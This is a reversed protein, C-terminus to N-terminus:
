DDRDQGVAMLAISFAIGIGVGMVLGDGINDMAVGMAAGVGVGIAMGISWYVSDSMPRGGPQLENICPARNLEGGESTKDLLGEPAIVVPQCIGHAFSWGIRASVNFVMATM